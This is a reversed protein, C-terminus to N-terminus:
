ASQEQDQGQEDIHESIVVQNRGHEKAHYLNEDAKQLIVEPDIDQDPTLVIVGISLTVYDSAKSNKHEIKLDRVNQRLKEAMTYANEESINAILVGFEEGGLRFLYDGPRKLTEKMVTAVAKLTIDGQLHGYSDNYVKFYDIDLMMFAVSTHERICRTLERNYVLNFYRRNYLETLSDTISATELKKNVSHLKKSTNILSRQNNQISQFIPAIIIIAAAILFILVAILQYLTENYTSLLEKREYQAMESEYKVINNIVDNIHSINNLLIKSSLNSLRADDLTIIAKSLHNLYEASKHIEADAYQIYGLEYDRKFHSRYSTWTHLIKKRSINIKEAAETPILQDNQLKYFSIFIEKNYEKQIEHLETVPIFNGFYLSDLNKKMKSLNFYGLTGTLLLGFIVLGLLFYLKFKLSLTNILGL